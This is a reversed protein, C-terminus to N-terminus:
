TMLMEKWKRVICVCVCVSKKHLYMDLRPSRGPMGVVNLGLIFRFVNKQQKKPSFGKAAFVVNM